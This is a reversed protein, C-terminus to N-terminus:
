RRTGSAKTGNEMALRTQIGGPSAKKNMRRDGDQTLEKSTITLIAMRFVIKFNGGAYALPQEAWM